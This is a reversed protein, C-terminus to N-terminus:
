PHAEAGDPARALQMKQNGAPTGRDLRMLEIDTVQFGLFLGPAISSTATRSRREAVVIGADFRGEVALFLDRIAQHDGTVVIHDYAEDLADLVLNLRDANLGETGDQHASGCPVVHTDSDPLRRIVEEFSARGELLDTFGPTSELGLDQAVGNGSPSWDVLVVQKGSATLADAIATAEQAVDVGPAEGSIVTRFGGQTHGHDLIRRAVEDISSLAKLGGNSQAPGHGAADAPGQSSATASRALAPSVDGAAGKAQRTPAADAMVPAVPADTARRGTRAPGGLSPESPTGPTGHRRAGGILERTIVLAFGLIFSAGSALLALQAKKPSSPVSSPRASSIVAAEVAVSKVDGRSRTAEFSAQLTELERRKAKALGELSALKAIDESKNGVRAKMEDLSKVALDERVALTRAEKELGEVVAVAEKNVARKLDAVNANLQKMRPHGALLSTEAEAKEREARVRQAILAQIIPSKQVEPIAEASNRQLLERAARARAEAEGRASRTRSVETALDTLQQENLGGPSSGRFLNAQSRFREVESEAESVERQLKDVQPRLWESADTTQVVGQSRLWDQYRDALRNAARAALESDISTFEITIVRTDKVQFVQLAQFYARLVREEESEGARPSSLGLMRSIKGALDAPPLESNFEPRANLKLEAAV